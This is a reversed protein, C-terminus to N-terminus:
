CFIENLITNIHFDLNETGISFIRSGLISGFKEKYPTNLSFLMKPKIKETLFKSKSVVKMQNLPIFSWPLIVDVSIADIPCLLFANRDKFQFFNRVGFKFDDRVKKRLKPINERGFDLIPKSEKKREKNERKFADM